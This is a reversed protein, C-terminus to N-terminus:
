EGRDMIHSFCILYIGVFTRLLRMVHAPWSDGPHLLFSIIGDLVCWLGCLSILLRWKRKVWVYTSLALFAGVTLTTAVLRFM